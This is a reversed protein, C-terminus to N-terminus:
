GTRSVARCAPARRPQRRDRSGAAAPDATRLRRLREGQVLHVRRPGAGSADLAARHGAPRGASALLVRDATRRAGECVPGAQRRRGRLPGRRSATSRGPRPAPRGPRPFGPPRPSGPRPRARVPKRRDAHGSLHARRRGQHGGRDGGRRRGRQDGSRCAWGRPVPRARSNRTSRRAAGPGPLRHRVEHPPRLRGRAKQLDLQTLHQCALYNAVDSASLRLRSDTIKM